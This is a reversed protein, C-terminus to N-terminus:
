RADANVELEGSAPWSALREARFAATYTAQYSPLQRDGRSYGEAVLWLKFTHTIVM